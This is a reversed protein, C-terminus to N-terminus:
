SKTMFASVYWLLCSLVGRTGNMNATVVHSKFDSMRDGNTAKTLQKARIQFVSPNIYNNLVITANLLFTLKFWKKLGINKYHVNFM